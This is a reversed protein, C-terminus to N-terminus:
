VAKAAALAAAGQGHAAECKTCNVEGRYAKGFSGRQGCMARYVGPGAAYGVHVTKSSRSTVKISETNM